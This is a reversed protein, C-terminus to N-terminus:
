LGDPGQLNPDTNPAINARPNGIVSTVPSIGPIISHDWRSRENEKGLVTNRRGLSWIRTVEKLTRGPIAKERSRM